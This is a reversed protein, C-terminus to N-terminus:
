FFSYLSVSILYQIALPPPCRMIFGNIGGDPCYGGPCRGCCGDCYLSKLAVSSNQGLHRCADGTRSRNSSTNGSPSKYSYRQTYQPVENPSFRTLCCDFIEITNYLSQPLYINAINKSKKILGSLLKHVIIHKCTLLTTKVNYDLLWHWIEAAYPLSKYRQGTLQM